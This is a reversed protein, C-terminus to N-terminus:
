RVRFVELIDTHDMKSTGEYKSIGILEPLVGFRHIFIQALLLFLFQAVAVKLLIREAKKM